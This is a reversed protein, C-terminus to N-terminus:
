ADGHEAERRRMEAPHYISGRTIGWFEPVLVEVKKVRAGASPRKTANPAFGHSYRL